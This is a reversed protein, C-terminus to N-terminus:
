SQRTRRRCRLQWRFLIAGAVLQALVILDDHGLDLAVVCARALRRVPDCIADAGHGVGIELAENLAAHIALLHAYAVEGFVRCLM